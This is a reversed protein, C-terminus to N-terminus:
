NTEASVKELEALAEDAKNYNQNIEKSKLFYEKAKEYNKTQYEVFGLNYWYLHNYPNMEIAKLFYERALDYNKINLYVYAINHVADAYNPKIKLAFEYYEIAKSFNGEDFYVNGLNLYVRFNNPATKQTATWLNKDNRFDFTRIFSRISYFIMLIVICITFFDRIDYKKEIKLLITVLFVSFFATGIYFYRDAYNVAVAVPSLTPSVSAFFVLALAGLKKEKLFLIFTGAITLVFISYLFIKLPITTEVFNTYFNLNIPLFELKYAELFVFAWRLVPAPATQPDFFFVNKLLEQRKALESFLWNLVFYGAPILYLLYCYINKLKIKSNVLFQDILVLMIPTTLAWATRLSALYGIYIMVSFILFVIKKTDLYTIYLLITVFTLFAQLLYGFGSIWVVAESVAPHISFLLTSYFATKNDFLRKALVYFLSTNLIHFIISRVHFVASSPGFTVYILSNLITHLNYTRVATGLNQIVQSGIIADLDDARLLEGTIANAFVLIILLALIGFSKYDNISFGTSVPTGIQSQNKNLVTKKM